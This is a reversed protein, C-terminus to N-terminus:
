GGDFARQSPSSEASSAASTSRSSSAAASRWPGPRPVRRPARAPMIASPPQERLLIGDGVRRVCARVDGDFLRRKRLLEGAIEAISGWYNGVLKCAADWARARLVRMKGSDDNCLIALRCRLNKLDGLGGRAAIDDDDNSAQEHHFHAAAIVGALDSAIEFSATLSDWLPVRARTNPCLLLHGSLDEEIRVIEIKRKLPLVGIVHGAEHHAVTSLTMAHM